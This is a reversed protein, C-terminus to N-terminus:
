IEPITWRQQSRRHCELRCYYWFQGFVSDWFLTQKKGVSRHKKLKREQWDQISAIMDQWLKADNEEDSSEDPAPRRNEFFDYETEDHHRHHSSSSSSGTLSGSWYSTLWSLSGSGFWSRSPATSSTFSSVPSALILVFGPLM